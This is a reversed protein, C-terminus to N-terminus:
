RIKRNYLLSLISSAPGVWATARSLTQPALDYEADDRASGNKLRLSPDRACRFGASASSARSKCSRAKLGPRGGEGPRATEWVAYCVWVWFGYDCGSAGAYGFHRSEAGASRGESYGECERRVHRVRSCISACDLARGAVASWSFSIERCSEHDSDLEWETQRLCSVRRM